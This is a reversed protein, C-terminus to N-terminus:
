ARRKRAVARDIETGSKVAYGEALEVVRARKGVDLRHDAVRAGVGDRERRLDGLARDIEGAAVVRQRQARSGIGCGDGVDLSRIPPEPLSVMVSPEAAELAEISKLEPESLSVSPAKALLRVTVFTSVSTPPAPASVTVSPAAM